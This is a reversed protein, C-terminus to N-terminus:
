HRWDEPVNIDLCWEFGYKTLWDGLKMKSQPYARKNPDPIIFRITLHPNSERVYIYKKAEDFTRFYGKAEYLIDPDSKSAFDPNYTKKIVYDTKGWKPEYEHHKMSGRHLNFELNSKYPAPYNKKRPKRKRPM